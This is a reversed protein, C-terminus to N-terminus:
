TTLRGDATVGALWLGAKDAIEIMRPTDIMLVGGAVYAIGKLDAAAAAAVTEPGLAPMDNRLEQQPKPGKVLVGARGSTTFRGIARLAGVREIMATTGEAAEAAIV